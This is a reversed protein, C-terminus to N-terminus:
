RHLIAWLMLALVGLGLMTATILALGALLLLLLQQAEQNAIPESPATLPAVPDAPMVSAPLVTPTIALTNTPLIVPTHTPPLIPTNTPLPSPLELSASSPTLTESVVQAPAANSVILPLFAIAENPVPLSVTVQSSAANAAPLVRVSVVARSELGAIRAVLTLMTDAQLILQQEGAATVALANGAGEIRVSEARQTQWRLQIREGAHILPPDAVFWDIQPPSLTPTWTPSLIPLSTATASPTATPLPPLTPLPTSTPLPTASPADTPAATPTPAPTATPESTATATPIPTQTAPPTCIQEFSVIQPPVAGDVAGIGWVWGDVDGPKVVSNAAGNPSYTWSVGASRWYSWYICPSGQCQCFCSEVPATCGENDIRCVADGMGSQDTSMDLGSRRLLELGSIQTEAFAVCSTVIRGDGHQIVVGARQEQQATAWQVKGDVWLGCFLIIILTLIVRLKIM